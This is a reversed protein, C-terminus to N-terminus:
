QPAITLAAEAAEPDRGRACARCAGCLTNIVLAAGFRSAVGDSIGFADLTAQPAESATQAALDLTERCRDVDRVHGTVSFLSLLALALDDRPGTLM